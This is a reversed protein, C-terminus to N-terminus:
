KKFGLGFGIGFNMFFSGTAKSYESDRSAPGPRVGMEVSYQLGFKRAPLMKYGVRFGVPIKEWTDINLLDGDYNIIDKAYTTNTSLLLDAYIYKFAKQTYEGLGEVEAKMRYVKLRSLGIHFTGSTVKQSVQTFYPEELNPQYSTAMSGNFLNYGGRAGYYHFEKGKAPVYYHTTTNYGTSASNVVVKYERKKKKSAFYYDGEVGFELPKTVGAASEMEFDGTFDFTYTKSAYGGISWKNDKRYISEIRFGLDSASSAKWYFPLIMFHLNEANLPNNDLIKVTPSESNASSRNNKNKSWQGFSNSTLCLSFVLLFTFKLFNKKM